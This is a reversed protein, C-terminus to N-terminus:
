SLRVYIRNTWPGGSGGGCDISEEMLQVIKRHDQYKLKVILAVSESDKTKFFFRGEHKNKWAVPFSGGTNQGHIGIMSIRGSEHIQLDDVYDHGGPRTYKGEFEHDHISHHAFPLMDKSHSVVFFVILALIVLLLLLALAFVAKRWNRVKIKLGQVQEELVQIPSKKEGDEEM